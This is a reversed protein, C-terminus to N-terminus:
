EPMRVISRLKRYMKMFLVPRNKQVFSYYLFKQKTLMNYKIAWERAIPMGRRYHDTIISVVKERFVPLDIHKFYIPMLLTDWDKTKGSYSQSHIRYLCLIDDMFEIKYKKAIRLSMDYDEFPLEEDYGGIEDYVSMRILMGLGHLINKWQLEKLIDGSPAYEFPCKIVTTMYTGFKRKGNEDILGPDTYAMAASLDNELVHVLKSIKEPLYLDDTAIMSFYKGNANAVLDNCVKCVGGNKEHRIYRYPKDYTKLWEEILGASDDTSADDVIVLEINPYTQNRISELSEIVYRSNNFNAAGITVLPLLESM